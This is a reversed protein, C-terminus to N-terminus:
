GNSIGVGDESLLPCLKVSFKLTVPQAQINFSDGLVTLAQLPPENISSVATVIGLENKLALQMREM